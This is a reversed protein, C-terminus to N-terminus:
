QHQWLYINSKLKSLKDTYGIVDWPAGFCEAIIAGHYRQVFFEKTESFESFHEQLREYSYKIIQIDNMVRDKIKTALEIDQYSQAFIAIKATVDFSDVLDCLNVLDFSSHHSLIIMADYKYKIPSRHQCLNQSKIFLYGSDAGFHVNKVHRSKLFEYSERDRVVSNNSLSFILITIAQQLKSYHKELGVSKIINEKGIMFRLLMIMILYSTKLYSRFGIFCFQNGGVIIFKDYLCAKLISRFFSVHGVRDEFYKLRFPTDFRSDRYEILLQKFMLDDGINGRGFQGYILNHM